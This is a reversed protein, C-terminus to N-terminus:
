GVLRAVGRGNGARTAIAQYSQNPALGSLYAADLKEATVAELDIRCLAEFDGIRSSGDSSFQGVSASTVPPLDPRSLRSSHGRRVLGRFKFAAIM